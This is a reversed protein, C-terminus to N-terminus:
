SKVLPPTCIHLPLDRVLILTEGDPQANYRVSESFVYEDKNHVFVLISASDFWPVYEHSGVNVLAQLGGQIGSSRMKYNFNSTRHNFTFCNGLVVDNWKYLDRELDLRKEEFAAWHFMDAYEWSLGTRNDNEQLGIIFPVMDKIQSPNRMLDELM